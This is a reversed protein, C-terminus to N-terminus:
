ISSSCSKKLAIIIFFFLFYYYYYYYYYYHAAWPDGVPRLLHNFYQGNLPSSFCCYQPYSTRYYLMMMFTRPPHVHDFSRSTVICSSTPLLLLFTNCFMCFDTNDHDRFIERVKLTAVFGLVTTNLIYASIPSM